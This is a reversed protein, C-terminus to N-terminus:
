KEEKKRKCFLLVTLVVGSVLGIGAISFFVISLIIPLMISFDSQGYVILSVERKMENGFEDVATYCVTYEGAKEASFEAGESIVKGDQYVVIQKAAIESYDSLTASLDLTEGKNCEFKEVVDIVPASFDGVTITRVLRSENGFSDKVFYTVVYDGADLYNLATVKVATGNPLVVSEVSVDYTKVEDQRNLIVIDSASIRKPKADKGDTFDYRNTLGDVFALQPIIQDFVSVTSIVQEAKYGTADGFGEYKVWIKEYSNPTYLYKGDSSRELVSYTEGDNSVSVTGYVDITNGSTADYYLPTLDCVEGILVISKNAGGIVPVTQNVLKNTDVYNFNQGNLSYIIMQPYRAYPSTVEDYAGNMWAYGDADTPLGYADDPTVDTFSVSVDYGGIFDESSIEGFMKQTPNYWTVGSNDTMDRVLKESKTIHDVGGDTAYVCMTKPDFRIGNALTPVVNKGSTMNFDCFSTGCLPTNNIANSYAGDKLGYGYRQVGDPDKQGVLDGCVEVRASTAYAYSQAGGYIYVRFWKDPNRKSTFTFAVEKVDQYLNYKDGYVASLSKEKVYHTAWSTKASYLYANQSPIRFSTSFEGVMTDAFSFGTNEANKGSNKSKILLGKEAYSKVTTDETVTFEDANYTIFDTQAREVKPIIYGELAVNEDTFSTGNISYVTMDAYRDYAQALTGYQGPNSVVNCFNVNGVCDNATVDSFEVSVTYGDAFDEKTLTSLKGLTYSDTIYNNNSLDRVLVDANTNTDSFRNRYDSNINGVNTANVYVKMNEADFKVLNSTTPAETRDSSSTATYNSFSTGGINTSNKYWQAVYSTAGVPIGYGRGSATLGAMDGSVFVTASTNAANYNEAGVTCTGRIYVIFYKEADSNSQFRIGVEKLDLFPNMNDNTIASDPNATLTHTYGGTSGEKYTFPTKSTVRFDMEFDGQFQNEFSFSSGEAAVGSKQSRIRVGSKGTDDKYTGGFEASLEEENYVIKLSDTTEASTSLTSIGGIASTGCVLSLGAVVLKKWWKNKSM